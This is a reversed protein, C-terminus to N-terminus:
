YLDGGGGLPTSQYQHSSLQSAYPDVIISARGGGGGGGIYLFFDYHPGYIYIHFVLQENKDNDRHHSLHEQGLM